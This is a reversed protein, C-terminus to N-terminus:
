CSTKAQIHHNDKEKAHNKIVCKNYQCFYLVM